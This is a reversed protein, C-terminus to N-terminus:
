KLSVGGGVGERGCHAWCVGRGSKGGPGFGMVGDRCKTENQKFRCLLQGREKQM